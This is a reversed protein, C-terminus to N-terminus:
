FEDRFFVELSRLPILPSQGLPCLSTAAMYAAEELLQDLLGTRKGSRTRSEQMLRVLRTTGVRCPVCKGCSEHRFFELIAATTEFLSRGDGLVIVAGSGLVAGKAKLTDFGMPTDLVSADVFSGAAGGILAARFTRDPLMGGALDDILSRLSLGLETEYYGPRAVDGSLTFIKTGPSGEIGLTLDRANGYRM